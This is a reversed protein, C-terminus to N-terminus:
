QARLTQLFAESEASEWTIDGELLYLVRGKPDIIYTSPLNKYGLTRQLVGRDDHFAAFNGIGRNELYKLLDKRSKDKEVSVAIVEIDGAYDEKVKELLPLERVCPACWTAWLNMVLFQGKFDRIHFRKGRRGIFNAQESATQPPDYVEFAHFQQAFAQFVEESVSIDKTRAQVGGIVLSVLLIIALLFLSYPPIRGLVTQYTSHMRSFM